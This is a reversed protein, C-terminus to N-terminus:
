EKNDKMKRKLPLLSRNRLRWHRKSKLLKEKSKPLYLLKEINRLRLKEKNKSRLMNSNNSKLFCKSNSRFIKSSRLPKDRNRFPRMKGEKNLL